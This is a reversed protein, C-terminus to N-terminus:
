DARAVNTDEGISVLNVSNIYEATSEWALKVQPRLREFPMVTAMGLVENFKLYAMEGLSKM